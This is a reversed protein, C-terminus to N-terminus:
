ADMNWTDVDWKMQGDEERWLVAYKGTAEVGGDFTLTVAGLQHVYDGARRLRVTSLRAARIGLQQQAGAWFAAIAERGEVLPAGPPQIQADRTYAIRAAAGADGRNFAEMFAADTAEIRKRVDDPVETAARELVESM